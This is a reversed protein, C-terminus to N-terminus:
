EKKLKAFYRYHELTAIKQIGSESFVKYDLSNYSILDGIKLLDTKTIINIDGEFDRGRMEPQYEKKNKKTIRGLVIFTTSTGPIYEGQNSYSGESNRTVTITQTFLNM